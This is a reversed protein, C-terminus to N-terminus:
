HGRAYSAALVIRRVEGLETKYMARVYREYEPIALDLQVLKSDGAVRVKRKGARKLWNVQAGIDKGVNQSFGLLFRAHELGYRPQKTIGFEGPYRSAYDRLTEIDQAAQQQELTVENSPNDYNFYEIPILLSTRPGIAIKVPGSNKADIPIKRGGTRDELNKGFLELQGGEKNNTKIQKAM